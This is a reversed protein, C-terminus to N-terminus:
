PSLMEPVWLRLVANEHRLALLEADNALGKGVVALALGLIRRVLLYVIKLM